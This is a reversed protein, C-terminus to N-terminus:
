TSVLTESVLANVAEKGIPGMRICYIQLGQVQIGKIMNEIPINADAASSDRYSLYYSCFKITPDVIINEITDIVLPRHFNIYLQSYTLIFVLCLEGIADQDAWHLDEFILAIPHAEKSIAYILKALLLTWRTALNETAAHYPAARSNPNLDPEKRGEM